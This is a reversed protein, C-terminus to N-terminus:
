PSRDVTNSLALFDPTESHPQAAYGSLILMRAGNLNLQESKAMLEVNQLPQHLSGFESSRIAEEPHPQCGGPPVPTRCQEDDFRLGDNAPVSLSEAEEPRPFRTTTTDAAGAHRGFGALQNAPHAAFVRKYYIRFSFM